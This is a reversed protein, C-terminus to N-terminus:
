SYNGGGDQLNCVDVLRSHNCKEHVVAGISPAREAAALLTATALLDESRCLPHTHMKPLIDAAVTWADCTNGRAADVIWSRLWYPIFAEELSDYAEVVNFGQLSSLVGEAFIVRIQDYDFLKEWVTTLTSDADLDLQTGPLSQDSPTIEGRPLDDIDPRTDYQKLEDGICEGYDGWGDISELRM